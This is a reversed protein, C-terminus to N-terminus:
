RPPEADALWPASGSSWLENLQLYDKFTDMCQWFGNHRFVRLHGGNALMTLPERELVCGDDGSLYDFFNRRFVFFGGNIVSPIKPKEAFARVRDGEIRLEGFQSNSQVGTVTGIDGHSLHFAMLAGIDVNALGDGYTLMFHETEVLREIRKIRGGTMTKLGTDVFSIEWDEGAVNDLFHPEPEGPRLTFDRLSTEYNLFFEKIMGGKYGLCLIFRRCGHRAYLQMIHYLIPRGGVEALPKPRYQSEEHFRTGEGGCLIVVPIARCAADVRGSDRVARDM